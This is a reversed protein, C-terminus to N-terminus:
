TRLRRVSAPRDANKGTDGPNLPDLPDGPDAPVPTMFEQESDGLM